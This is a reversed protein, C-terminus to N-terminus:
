TVAAAGAVIESLEQTIAAQRAKNYELELKSIIEGANDSASKMAVMRAAMECAVNEVVGHYVQSEVYRMLIHDLLVVPDPEYIYDWHTPLAADEEASVPLLRLLGPRQTMTNVFENGALYLQDIEGDRYADLMVTIAGILGELRPEDGLGTVQGKLDAVRRFFSVGKRGVAAVDVELGQDQWGRMEGLVRRFLNINLGGALGRDSSIVLVGIRKAEREVMFPHKYYPNANAIHGIVRRMKEAYPRAAEARDQARRMKSAAVMEMAKTIKQTNEVSRIKGKVEKAGAM